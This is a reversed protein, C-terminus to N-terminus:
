HFKKWMCKKGKAEKLRMIDAKLLKKGESVQIKQLLSQLGTTYCKSPSIGQLRTFTTLMWSAWLKLHCNSYVPIPWYCLLSSRIMARGGAISWDTVWWLFVNSNCEWILYKCPVRFYSWVGWPMLLPNPLQQFILRWQLKYTLLSRTWIVKNERRQFLKVQTWCDVICCKSTKNVEQQKNPQFTLKQVVAHQFNVVLELLSGLAGPSTGARVM